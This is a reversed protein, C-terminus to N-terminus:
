RSGPLDKRIWYGVGRQLIGDSLFLVHTQTSTDWSWVSEGAQGLDTLEGVTKDRPPGILNWGNGLIITPESPDHVIAQTVRTGEEPCFVWFGFTAASASCAAGIDAFHAYRQAEGDWVWIGGITLQNGDDDLLQTCIPPGTFPMSLLNWGRELTLRICSLHYVDSRAPSSDYDGDSVRVEIIRTEPDPSESTNNYRLTRLATEYEALTAKGTVTLLGAPPDYSAAMARGVTDISLVDHVADLANVIRVTASDLETDNADAVILKSADVVAVAGGDETFTATYDVGEGAGNLDVVPANSNVGVHHIRTAFVPVGHADSATLRVEYDGPIDPTFGTAESGPSEISCLSGAPRAKLEWSWSLEDGEPDVTASGDLVVHQGVTGSSNSGVNMQPPHNKIYLRVEGGRDGLLLDNRGDGDWDVTRMRPEMGWNLSGSQTKVYIGSGFTPASDTGTNEYYKTDGWVAVVVLDKKGDGNWDDVVPSTRWGFNQDPGVTQRAAFTPSADTGSNLYLHLYGTQDPYSLEGGTLIDKKGDNNWDTVFVTPKNGGPNQLHAGTTYQARQLAGYVPTTDSTNLAYYIREWSDGIVLDLRGDNNWDV